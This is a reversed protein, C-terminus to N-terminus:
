LGLNSSGLHGTLHLVSWDVIAAALLEHASISHAIFVGQSLPDPWMDSYEKHLAICFPNHIDHWNINCVLM